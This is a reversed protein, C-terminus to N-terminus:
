ENYGTISVETRERVESLTRFVDIKLAAECCIRNLYDIFGNQMPKDMSIMSPYGRRAAIRELYGRM